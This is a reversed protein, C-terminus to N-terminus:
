LQVIQYFKLKIYKKTKHHFVTLIEFIMTSFKEINIYKGLEHHFATLIEFIM